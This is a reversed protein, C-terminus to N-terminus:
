QSITKFYDQAVAISQEPTIWAMLQTAGIYLAVYGGSMSVIRFDGLKKLEMRTQKITPKMTIGMDSLRFGDPATILLHM